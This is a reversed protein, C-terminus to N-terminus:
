GNAVNQLDWGSLDAVEKLASRWQEVMEMKDKFRDEQKAFAEAYTRKQHRVDSPDVNYFIPLVMQGKSNKCEMIKVLENLCWRSSAYNKSFVVVAIRSKEIAWLLESSIEEGKPLENDDIFTHIGSSILATYLHGTFIKRTDGRFSLFVDHNWRSRSSSAPESYSTSAM